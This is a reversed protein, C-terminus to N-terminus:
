TRPHSTRWGEAELEEVTFTLKLNHLPGSTAEPIAPVQSETDMPPPLPTASNDGTLNQASRGNTEWRAVSRRSRNQRQRVKAEAVIERVQRKAWDLGEADVRGREKKLFTRIVQHKWLSLGEAYAKNVALAEIYQRDFPNYIFIRSIDGPHYKVKVQQENPKLQDRLHALDSHNYRLGDIEVGYHFLTRTLTRGLLIDIDEVNAPLNPQFGDAISREWRRAPIGQIGEHFREAYYDLLFIHLARDIDSLTLKAVELSRYDGREFINAFTTGELTHFLGSNQTRFLREISGKFHPTMVPMYQIIIGLSLCADELNRGKFERGNDVALTRPLGYSIWDHATKYRACVDGKPKFAHALAECVSLYSPPEFGLYYGLPYRTAVDMVSTLTPRGLPLGDEADILIVDVPTHDIEVREM